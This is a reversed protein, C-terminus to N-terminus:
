GAGRPVVSIWGRGAFWTEFVRYDRVPAEGVIRRLTSREGGLVFLSSGSGSVRVVAPGLAEIRRLLRGVRPHKSLVVPELDNHLRVLCSLVGSRTTLDCQRLKSLPGRPTLAIKRCKYISATSIFVLPFIVLLPLRPLAPFPTLREGKGEALQTGGRIFFSVDSGLEAGLAELEARRLGLGWLRNLGVLTAAADSSGGGLGAGVPILKRLIIAAGGRTGTRDKLLRAARLALNGEDVPLDSDPCRLSLRGDPAPSLDIRDALAISQMLSRIEHYGDPRVGVVELGLNIKARAELHVSAAREARGM